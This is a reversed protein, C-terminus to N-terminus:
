VSCLSRGFAMHTWVTCRCTLSIVLPPSYIVDRGDRLCVTYVNLSPYVIVCNIHSAIQSM